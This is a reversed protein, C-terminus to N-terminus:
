NRQLLGQSNSRELKGRARSVFTKTLREKEKNNLVYISRRSFKATGTSKSLSAVSRSDM